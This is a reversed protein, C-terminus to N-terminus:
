PTMPEFQKVDDPCNAICRQQPIVRGGCAAYCANYTPICGCDRSCRSQAEAIEDGLSPRYPRAPANPRHRELHKLDKRAREALECATRDREDEKCRREYKSKEHALYSRQHDYRDREAEYIAQDTYYVRMERDYRYMLEDFGDRAALEARGLCHQYRDECDFRCAQQNDVCRQTCAEAGQGAAPEYQYVTQWRPGACASLGFALAVLAMTRVHMM